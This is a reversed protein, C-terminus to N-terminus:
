PEGNRPKDGSRAEIQRANARAAQSVLYRRLGVAAGIARKCLVTAAGYEDNSLAGRQWAKLIQNKTELESGIAIRLSNAFQAPAFRGFGEAINRPASAAADATQECFDRDRELLPHRILAQAFRELEDARQWAILETFDRASEM